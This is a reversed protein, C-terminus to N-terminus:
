FLGRWGLTLSVPIPEVDARSTEYTITGMDGVSVNTWYPRGPIEYMAYVSRLEITGYLGPRVMVHLSVGGVVGTGTVHSAYGVFIPVETRAVGVFIGPVIRSGGLSLRAGFSSVRLRGTTEAARIPEEADYRFLDSTRLELTVPGTYYGLVLGRGMGFHYPGSMRLLTSMGVEFGLVFNARQGRSGPGNRAFSTSTWAVVVICLLLKRSSAM